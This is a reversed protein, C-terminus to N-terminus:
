AAPNTIATRAGKGTLDVTVTALAKTDGGDPSWSVEAYGSYAEPGGDRDYWRVHVIGDAGFAEAAARLVEQGPDPDGSEVGIKRAVKASLAWGLQTKTSSSWGDSDYDSDDELNTDVKPTFETLARVQVWHDGTVTVPGDATLDVAAGGVTASVKFTNVTVTKAYYTTGAVLPAVVVTFVVPDGESLGHATSTIIDTSLAATGDIDGTSLDVELKYKRALTSTLTEATM